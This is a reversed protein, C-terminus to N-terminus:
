CVPSTSTTWCGLLSKHLQPGQQSCETPKVYLWLVLIFFLLDSKTLFGMAPLTQDLTRSTICRIICLNPSIIPKGQPKYSGGGRDLRQVYDSEGASCYCTWCCQVHFVLLYFRWSLKCSVQTCPPVTCGPLCASKYIWKNRPAAWMKREFSSVCERWGPRDALELRLHCPSQFHSSRSCSQVKWCAASASRFETVCTVDYSLPNYSLATTEGEWIQPKVGM